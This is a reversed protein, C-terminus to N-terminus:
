PKHGFVEVESLALYSRRAVRLRVFRAVRQHGAVVWPADPDFHEDRRGIESYSAGNTSFEVVLPLCDDFWGDVRNYVDVKEIRYTDLLDIIVNPSEENITQIGYSTGIEGDVLEHGDFSRNLNSSLRVPKGLAINPTMVAARTWAVLGYAILLGLAALRGWRTGRVNSLSRAEVRRRLMRAARELAWRARAVDEPSLRDFYLPDLTSLAARVRADDTPTATPRM